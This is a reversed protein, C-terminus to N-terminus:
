RSGAISPSAYLGGTWTPNVYYQFKRLEANRYM